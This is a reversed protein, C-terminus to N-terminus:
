KGKNHQEKLYQYGQMVLNIHHTPDNEETLVAWKFYLESLLKQNGQEKFYDITDEYLKNLKSFSIFPLDSLYLLIAKIHESSDISKAELYLNELKKILLENSIQSNIILYFNTTILGHVDNIRVKIDKSFNFSTIALDKKNLKIFARGLNQWAVATLQYDNNKKAFNLAEYSSEVSLIYEKNSYHYVAKQIYLSALAENNKLEKAFIILEDIRKTFNELINLKKELLLINTLIKLHLEKYLSPNENIIIEGQHLVKLAKSLENNQSYLSTEMLILNLKDETTTSLKTSYNIVTRAENLLNFKIMKKTLLINTELNFEMFNESFKLIEEKNSMETLEFYSFKQILEMSTNDRNTEKIINEKPVNLRAAISEIIDVNINLTKGLEINSITAPTTIGEALSKLTLGKQKRLHRIKVGDIM